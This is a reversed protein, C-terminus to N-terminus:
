NVLSDAVAESLEKTSFPKSLIQVNNLEVTKLGEVYGTCLLAPQDPNEQRISSILRAGDMEPMSLDSIVLEYRDPNAVYEDLAAISSSFSRIRYGAAELFQRNADLVMEDDDVLLITQNNGLPIGKKIDVVEEAKYTKLLPLYVDIRTGAGRKSTVNIYGDHAKVIRYVLSLGLGTGKGQPKTTFFPEFIHKLKNEDIGTGTDEISLRAYHGPPMEQSFFRQPLMLQEQTVSVAISGGTEEVAHQANVCTNMIVQHLQTADGRIPPVGEECQFEISCNVAAFSRVQDVSESVLDRLEIARFNDTASQRSFMLVQAILGKARDSATLIKTLKSDVKELGENLQMRALEANAIISMLINNFDHAIGGALSGLAEMKHVERLKAEARNRRRIAAALLVVLSLLFLIVLTTVIVLSGYERWLTARENIIVADSPLLGRNIGFRDLQTGNFVNATSAIHSGAPLSGTDLMAEILAYTQDAYGSAITANGGIAGSRVLTDTMGMVPIDIGESLVRAAVVTRFINGNRDSNYAGLMLVSNEPPPNLLAIVENLPNGRFYIVDANIGTDLLASDFRRLYSQDGLGAGGVVYIRELDPFLGPLLDVTNRIALDISSLVFARDPLNEAAEIVDNGPLVHLVPIGPAFHHAWRHVFDNADASFAVVLDIDLHGHRLRLSEALQELGDEPTQILPLFEPIAALEPHENITQLILQSANEEWIAVDASGYIVLINHQIEEAARLDSSSFALTFLLVVLSQQFRVWSIVRITRRM